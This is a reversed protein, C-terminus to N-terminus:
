KISVLFRCKWSTNVFSADLACRHVAFSVQYVGNTDKEICDKEVNLKVNKRESLEGVKRTKGRDAADGNDVHFNEVYHITTLFPRVNFLVKGWFCRVADAAKKEHTLREHLCNLNRRSPEAANDMSREFWKQEFNM